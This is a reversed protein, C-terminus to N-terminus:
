RRGLDGDDDDGSVNLYVSHCSVCTEMLMGFSHALAKPPTKPDGALEALNKARMRLADQLTFFREPLLANLTDDNRAIPRAFATSALSSAFETSGEPDLLLVSWMLASMDRGHDEMDRAIIRRAALPIWEPTPLRERVLPRRSVPAKAEPKPPPSPDARVSFAAAAVVASTLALAARNSARM